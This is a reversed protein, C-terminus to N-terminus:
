KNEKPCMDNNLMSFLSQNIQEFLLRVQQYKQLYDRVLPHSDLEKKAKALDQRAKTAAVSDDSFYKLTQNYYDLACDKRYSLAMVEESENMAFEELRFFKQTPTFAAPDKFYAQWAKENEDQPIHYYAVTPVEVPLAHTANAKDHELKWWETQDKRIYDYDKFPSVSTESFSAGSDLNAVQWTVENGTKLNIVFNSRGYLNDNPEIYICHKAKKFKKSLWNPNYLGHRDHNGWIVTYTFGYKEAQKEFFNVFTDVHYSNALMFLDGTIEVLDIKGKKYAEALVKELYKKSASTSSNANWHIDTLQLINFNDHYDMEYVYDELHDKFNKVQGCSTLTISLVPLLVLLAKNKM